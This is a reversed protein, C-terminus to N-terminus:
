PRERGPGPHRGARAGGARVLCPRPGPGRVVLGLLSRSPAAAGPRPILLRRHRPPRPDAAPAPAARPQGRRPTRPAPLPARARRSTLPAPPAPPLHGGNSRAPGRLCLAAHPARSGPGPTPLSCNRRLAKRCLSHKLPNRYLLSAEKKSWLLATTDAPTNQKQTQRAVDPAGHRFLTM